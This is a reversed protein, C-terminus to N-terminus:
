ARTSSLYCKNHLDKVKYMDLPVQFLGFKAWFFSKLPVKAVQIELYALLLLGVKKEGERKCFM